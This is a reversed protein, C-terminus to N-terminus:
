SKKKRKKFILREEFSLRPFMLFRLCGELFIEDITKRRYEVWRLRKHKLQCTYAEM